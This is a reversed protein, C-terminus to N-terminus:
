SRPKPPKPGRGIRALPDFKASTEAEFPLKSIAPPRHARNLLADRAERGLMREALTSARDRPLSSGAMALPASSVLKIRLAEALGMLTTDSVARGERLARLVAAEIWAWEHQEHDVSAARGHPHALEDVRRIAVEIPDVDEELEAFSPERQLDMAHLRALLWQAAQEAGVAEVLPQFAELLHELRDGEAFTGPSSGSLLRVVPDAISRTLVLQDLATGLGIQAAARVIDEFPVVGNACASTLQQTLDDGGRGEDRSTHELIVRAFAIPDSAMFSELEASLATSTSGDKSCLLVKLPLTTFDPPDRLVDSLALDLQRPDIASLHVAVTAWRNAVAEDYGKRQLLGRVDDISLRTMFSALLAVAGVHDWCGFARDAFAAREPTALDDVDAGPLEGARHAEIMTGVLTRFDNLGGARSLTDIVARRREETSVDRRRIADFDFTAPPQEPAFPPRPAFLPARELASFCVLRRDAEFFASQVAPYMSYFAVDANVYARAIADMVEADPPERSFYRDIMGDIKGLRRNSPAFHAMAGIEFARRLLRLCGILVDRSRVNGDADYAGEAITDLEFGHSGASYADSINWLSGDTISFLDADVRQSLPLLNMSFTEAGLPEGSRPGISPPLGRSEPYEDLARNQFRHRGKIRTTSGNEPLMIISDDWGFARAARRLAAIAGDEGPFTPHTRLLAQLRTMSFRVPLNNERMRALVRLLRIVDVNTVLTFDDTRDLLVDFHLTRASDFLASLTPDDADASLELLLPAYGNLLGNHSRRHDDAFAQPDFTRDGLPGHNPPHRPAEKPARTLGAADDILPRLEAPLTRSVEDMVRRVAPAADAHRRLIAESVGIVLYRERLLAAAQQGNDLRARRALQDLLLEVLRGRPSVTGGPIQADRRARSVKGVDYADQGADIKVDVVSRGLDSDTRQEGPDDSRGLRTMAMLVKM